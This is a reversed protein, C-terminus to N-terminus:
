ESRWVVACRKRPYSRYEVATAGLMRGLHDGSQRTRHLPLPGLPRVAARGSVKQDVFDGRSPQNAPRKRPGLRRHQERDIQRHLFDTPLGHRRKVAMLIQKAQELEGAEYHALAEDYREMADLRHEGCVLPCLAFLDVSQEMGPLKAHCVRFSTFEGALSSAVARSVVIPIGLQKTAQELRSALNVTSGRPGYKLRQTSGINGVQANGTHIGIGLELPAALVAQWRASVTPMKDRMEVAAQCARVVHRAQDLPANWMAALGDGCYDILTGGWDMVAATLADMVENLLTYTDATSLQECLAAFGRLDAFLVTVERQSGALAAADLAVREAVGPAFAQQYVVRQRAADAEDAMRRMGCSVSEALLEVLQAELYRVGRRGNNDHTARYGYVVGIVNQGGDLLPAVVVSPGDDHQTHFLTQRQRAAQEVLEARFGVGLEPRPLHSAVIQWGQDGPHLIMGGDLGVPDVVFRAADCFFEARHASWRHLTALAEFWRGLTAPAPGGQHADRVNAYAQANLPELSRAVNADDNRCRIEVHASGMVLHVADTVQLLTGKSIAEGTAACAAQAFDVRVNYGSATPICQLSEGMDSSDPPVDSPEIVHWAGAADVAVAVLGQHSTQHHQYSHFCTIDLM